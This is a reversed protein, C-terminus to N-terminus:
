CSEGKDEPIQASHGVGAHGETQVQGSSWIDRCKTCAQLTGLGEPDKECWDVM